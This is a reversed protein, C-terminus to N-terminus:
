EIGSIKNYIWAIVTGIIFGDVLAWLGGAVSGLPTPDFGLYWGGLTYILDAGLGLYTGAIGLLFTALGLTIGVAVGFSM